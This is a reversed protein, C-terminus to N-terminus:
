HLWLSSVTELFWVSFKSKFWWYIINLKMQDLKSKLVTRFHVSVQLMFEEMRTNFEGRSDCLVCDPLPVASQRVPQEWESTFVFFCNNASVGPLMVFAPCRASRRGPTQALRVVLQSSFSLSILLQCSAFAEARWRGSWCMFYLDVIHAKIRFPQSIHPPLEDTTDDDTQPSTGTNAPRHSCVDILVTQLNAFIHERSM